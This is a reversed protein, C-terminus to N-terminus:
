PSSGPVAALSQIRDMLKQAAPNSPDLNLASRAQERAPDLRNQSLFINALILHAAASDKVRLAAEAQAIADAHKGQAELTEALALHGAESNPNDSLVKDLEREAEASRGEALLEKGRALHAAAQEDPPLVSLKEERESELALSLLRFARGDFNKKLRALPQFDEGPDPTAALPGERGALWHLEQDRGATDGLKGLVQAMALHAEADNPEADLTEKIAKAAEDFRNLHYLCVARNFSFDPDFPDGQRARDFQALAEQYQGERTEMVGLNNAVEGLPVMGELTQFARESAPLHGLFFEGAGTMFLAETYDDDARAVKALWQSAAAYDKRNFYLKGLAFAAHHDSPDRRDAETLLAIGSDPDASLIGRIYSEFADLHLPPFRRRFDEEGGTTFGPEHTALMRWALQTSIDDLDALKGEAEIAPSLKLSRTDFLQARASLLDGRVSFSGVVAWDAGLIGAVQFKSALTIPVGVTVGAQESAQDRQDRSFVYRDGGALRRSVLEAFGEPLWRLDTRTSQNDFPFVLITRV